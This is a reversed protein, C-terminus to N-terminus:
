NIVSWSRLITKLDNVYKEQYEPTESHYAGYAKWTNGYKNMKKRVLWASVYISKCPDLLDTRDINFKKLEPLHVSNTGTMGIDQTNNTNSTITNPKFRSEKFAIAKLIWPNVSHFAAADDYCDASSDACLILSASFFIINILTKM